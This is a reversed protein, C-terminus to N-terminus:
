DIWTFTVPGATYIEKPLNDESYDLKEAKMVYEEMESSDPEIEALVCKEVYNDAITAAVEFWAREDDVNFPDANYTAVTNCLDAPAFGETYDILDCISNFWAFLYGKTSYIAEPTEDESFGLQLAAADLRGRFRYGQLEEEANEDTIKTVGYEAIAKAIEEAINSNAGNGDVRIPAFNHGAIVVTNRLDAPAFGELYNPNNTSMTTIGLKNEQDPTNTTLKIKQYM